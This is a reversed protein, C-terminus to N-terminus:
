SDMLDRRPPSSLPSGLPALLLVHYSVIVGTLGKLVGYFWPTAGCMDILVVMIVYELVTRFYVMCSCYHLYHLLMYLDM